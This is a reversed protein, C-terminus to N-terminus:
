RDRPVAVLGLQRGTELALIDSKLGQPAQYRRIALRTRRDMEGTVPGRYVGRVQLARHLSAIFDQTMMDPCPTQFWTEQRPKVIRQITETKYIGPSVVTGDARVDAPQILIQETVTEIVALTASTGWCTGPAAGPPGDEASRIAQPPVAAPTVADCAATAFAFLLVPLTVNRRSM